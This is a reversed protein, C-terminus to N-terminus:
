YGIQLIGDDAAKIVNKLLEEDSWENEIAKIGLSYGVSNNHLDMEKAFNNPKNEHADGYEEALTSSKGADMKNLACWYCHRIADGYGNTLGGFKSAANEAKVSNNYFQFSTMPHKVIFDKEDESLSKYKRLIDKTHVNYMMAREFINPMRRGNIFYNRM